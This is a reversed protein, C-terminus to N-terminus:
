RYGGYLWSPGKIKNIIPLVLCITFVNCVTGGLAFVVGTTSRIGHITYNVLETCLLSIGKHKLIWRLLPKSSVAKPLHFMKALADIETIAVWVMGWFTFGAIGGSTTSPTLVV